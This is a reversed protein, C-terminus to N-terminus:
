GGDSRFLTEIARNSTHESQQPIILDLKSFQFPVVLFFVNLNSRLLHSPTEWHFFLTFVMKSLFFIMYYNGLSPSPDSQSLGSM